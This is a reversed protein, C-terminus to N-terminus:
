SKNWKNGNKGLNFGASDCEGTHTSSVLGGHGAGPHPRFPPLFSRQSENIM